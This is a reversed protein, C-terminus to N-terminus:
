CGELLWLHARRDRRAEDEQDDPGYMRRSREYERFHLRRGVTWAIANGHAGSEFVFSRMLVAYM